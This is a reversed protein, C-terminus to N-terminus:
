SAEQLSRRVDRNAAHLEDVTLDSCMAILADWYRNPIGIEPWKRVGDTLAVREGVIKYGGAAEIIEPVTRM